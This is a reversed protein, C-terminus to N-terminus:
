RSQEATKFAQRVRCGRPIHLATRLRSTLSAEARRWTDEGAQNGVIVKGGAIQGHGGAQGHDTIVDQLISGARSRPDTMRLSVHLHPGYRCTCFSVDMGEATLLVDAIQPALDPNEVFGLHSFILHRCVRAETIGKALTAFFRRSRFPNQIRSLARLDCLPLLNLYAEVDETGGARYLHLTDSLIGYTLATALNRPIDLKRELLAQAFFTSTAGYRTDVISLEASPRGSAAHQDIVITAKKAGPFSNNRFEPQTDVLAVHQYRALDSVRLRHVSLHLLRVMEQNEKRGIVGGGYAIKSRIAFGRALIHRLACASALADPDPYDHMLILM